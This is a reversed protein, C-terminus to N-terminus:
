KLPTDYGSAEKLLHKGRVFVGSGKGIEVGDTNYVSAEATIKSDTAETVRGIAKMIGSAVPKTLKTTFTGTLVFVDFELSNAAFFAADDLMKFYVSGHVGGASHHYKDSLSIEIIAESESVTIQPQFFENIPAAKYMNELGRYHKKKDM